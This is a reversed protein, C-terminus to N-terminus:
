AKTKAATVNCRSLREASYPTGDYVFASLTGVEHALSRCASLSDAGTTDSTTHCGSTGCTWTVSGTVIDAKSSPQVPMATWPAGAFAPVSLAALAVALVFTKM